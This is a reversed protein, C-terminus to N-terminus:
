SIQTIFIFYREFFFQKLASDFARLYSLIPMSTYPVSFVLKLPNYSKSTSYNKKHSAETCYGASGLHKREGREILGFCYVSAKTLRLVGRSIGVTCQVITQVRLCHNFVVNNIITLIEDSFSLLSIIIRVLQFNQQTPSVFEQKGSKKKYVVQM